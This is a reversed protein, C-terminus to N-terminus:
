VQVLQRIQILLLKTRKIQRVLRLILLYAHKLCEFWVCFVKGALVDFHLSTRTYVININSLFQGLSITFM